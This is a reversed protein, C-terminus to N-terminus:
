NCHLESNLEVFQALRPLATVAAPDVSLGGNSAQAGVVVPALLVEFWIMM